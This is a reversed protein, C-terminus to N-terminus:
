GLLLFPRRLKGDEAIAIIEGDCVLMAVSDQYLASIGLINM